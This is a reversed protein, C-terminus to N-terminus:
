QQQLSWDADGDTVTGDNYWHTSAPPWHGHPFASQDAAESYLNDLQIGQTGLAAVLLAALAGLEALTIGTSSAATAAGAPAGVGTIIAAIAALYNVLLQFLVLLVGLYFTCGAAASWTLATQTRDAMMGIRTAAAAHSPIVSKYADAANGKWFHDVSLTAPQLDGAVGTVLRRVESWEHGLMYFRLPAVAGRLLERIREIITNGYRAVLACAETAATIVFSPLYRRGAIDAALAPLRQVMRTLEGLRNELQNITAEYEALDFGM